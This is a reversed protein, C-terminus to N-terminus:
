THKRCSSCKVSNIELKILSVEPAIKIQTLEKYDKVLEPDFRFFAFDHVPDRYVPTVPVRKKNTLVAYGTM